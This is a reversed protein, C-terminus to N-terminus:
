EVKALHRQSEWLSAMKITWEENNPQMTAMGATSLSARWHCAASSHFSIGDDSPPALITSTRSTNTHALMSLSIWQGSRVRVFSRLIQRVIHCKGYTMKPLMKMSRHSEHMIDFLKTRHLTKTGFMIILEISYFILFKLIHSVCMTDVIDVYVSFRVSKGFVFRLFYWIQISRWRQAIQSRGTHVVQQSFRFIEIEFNFEKNFKRLM